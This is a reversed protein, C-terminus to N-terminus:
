GARLGQRVVALLVCTALVQMATEIEELTPFTPAIRINRDRPDRGYPFPAGAATFKVGAQAALRVANRACGDGTDLSVFYGGRPNTWTAAGTGDLERHLIRQVADFKPKIVEAHHRMHARVSELNPLLELHRLQNLKDPGITQMALHQKADAINEPSAAMVAVGAGPFSMKSTSAFVLARNEHGARQCEPLINLLADAEGTLHHEAYANDWIIRFDPAATPMAALRKVIADAYTVGTPNSYKPVCWIGRIGPDAAVLEEIRQIDPGDATMDVPILEFGLHETIAFHRDYGPSPCLFKLNGQHTWPGDGDPVGFLKARVLADYMLTLSSNGGVIIQEAATDLLEAFLAKMEPLGDLGGYNRCDSGDAANFHRGPASLLSLSLDLQATCPKGRTMDLNLNQATFEALRATLDTEKATLASQDMASVTQM